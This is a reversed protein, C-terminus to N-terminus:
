LSKLLRECNQRLEGGVTKPNTADRISVSARRGLELAEERHQYVWRMLQSAKEVDPEAWVSGHAFPGYESDQSGVEVLNYGVLLSNDSDMYDLNGSYATGIVPKGLYMSQALIQGFGEARHLSVYCDSSALLSLFDTRTLRRNLLIINANRSAEEVARKLRRAQRSTRVVSDLTYFPNVSSSFKPKTKIILLVKDSKTFARKFAAVLALPNKREFGGEYEFAFLFVCTEKELCVRFRARNLSNEDISLPYPIKRVPIPSTRAMNKRIFESIVWVEDFLKFSPIWGSPIDPFDLSWMALNIKGSYYSPNSNFLKATTDPILRVLNIPYPNSATVYPQLTLDFQWPFLRRYLSYLHPHWQVDNVVFPLRGAECACVLQRASESYSQLGYAHCALNLGVGLAAESNKRDPYM